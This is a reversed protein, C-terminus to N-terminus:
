MPIFDMLLFIIYGLLGVLLVSALVIKAVQIFEEKTPTTSLKLVRIYKNWDLYKNYDENKNKGM